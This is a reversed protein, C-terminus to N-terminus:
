VEINSYLENYLSMVPGKIRELEYIDDSSNDILDLLVKKVENDSVDSFAVVFFLNRGFEVTNLDDIVEHSIVYDLLIDLSTGVRFGQGRISEYVVPNYKFIIKKLRDLKSPLQPDDVEELRDYQIRSDIIAKMADIGADSYSLIYDFVEDEKYETMLEVLNALMEENSLDQELIDNIIGPISYNEINSITRLLAIMVPIDIEDSIIIEYQQIVDKLAYYLCDHIRSILITNDSIGDQLGIITLLEETHADSGIEELLKFGDSYLLTQEPTAIDELVLLITDYM